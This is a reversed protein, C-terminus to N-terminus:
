DYSTVYMRLRSRERRIMDVDVSVDEEESDFTAYTTSLVRKHREYANPWCYWYSLVIVSSVFLINPVGIALTLNKVTDNWDFNAVTRELAYRKSYYCPFIKNDNSRENGYLRAFDTCNVRPPYGCGAM